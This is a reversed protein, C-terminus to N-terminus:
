IEELAKKASSYSFGRRILFALLKERREQSEYKAYLRKKREAAQRALLVEDQDKILKTILEKDVGLKVLELRLRIAGTPKFLNRDHIWMKTFSEDDLLKNKKLVTIVKKIEEDDFKKIKLKQEIEFVTRPRFKLYHLAITLPDPM